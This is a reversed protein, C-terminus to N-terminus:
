RQAEEERPEEMDIQRTISFHRVGEITEEEKLEAGKGITFVFKQSFTFWGHLFPDDEDKVMQTEDFVMLEDRVLQINM